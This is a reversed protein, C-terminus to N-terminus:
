LSIGGVKADILNKLVIMVTIAIAASAAVIIVKEVTFGSESEERARQRIDAAYGALSLLLINIRKM